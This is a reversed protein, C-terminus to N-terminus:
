RKAKSFAVTPKKVGDWCCMAVADGCDTSRGIRGRIGGGNGDDKPEVLIGRVTLRYRPATLDALLEPDPPLALRTAPDGSPDLLSRVNWHMAARTNAFGLEPHRLDVWDTAAASRIARANRMPVVQAQTMDYASGGVGDADINVLAMPGDAMETLIMAYVTQGDPTERGPRKTLPAIWNGFRKASVTQDKGGRAVDVGLCDLAMLPKAMERWRQQAALVWATPILQWLHDEIGASFDGYLMQSRLPEPMSQLTHIYGTAMYVPNDQVRAKILTRSRPKIREGKHEIEDGTRFWTLQDDLYAYWRLEGPIAPDPHTSDLWPGWEEVVWRGEPTTPPNGMAVIRCRQGIRDTRNWGIIFRYQDRLFHSLEDFVKLDDDHGQYKERDDLHECGGLQIERGNPLRMTGGHGSGSWRGGM